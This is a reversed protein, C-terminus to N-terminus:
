LGTTDYPVPHGNKEALVIAVEWPKKVKYKACFLRQCEFPTDATLEYRKGRFFVIYKNM